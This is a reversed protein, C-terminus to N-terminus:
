VGKTLLFVLGVISAASTLMNAIVWRIITRKIFKTNEQEVETVSKWIEISRLRTQTSDTTKRVEAKFEDNSKSELRLNNILVDIKKDMEILLKSEEENTM